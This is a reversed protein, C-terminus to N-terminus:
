SSFLYSCVSGLLLISLVLCAERGEEEVCVRDISRSAWVHIINQQHSSIPDPRVYDVTSGVVSDVVSGVFSGVASGVVSDVLCFWRCFWCSLVLSLVLM